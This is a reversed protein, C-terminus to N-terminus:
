QTRLPWRRTSSAVPHDESPDTSQVGRLTSPSMTLGFHSLPSIARQASAADNKDCQPLIPTPGLDFLGRLSAM